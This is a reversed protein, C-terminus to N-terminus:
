HEDMAWFPSSRFQRKKTLYFSSAPSFDDVFIELEENDAGAAVNFYKMNPRSSVNAALERFTAPVPEILYFNCRPFARDIALAIEGNHAGVYAINHIEFEAFIPSLNILIHKATISLNKWAEQPYHEALFRDLDAEPSPVYKNRSVRNSLKMIFSGDHLSKLIRAVLSM